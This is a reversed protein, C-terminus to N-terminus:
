FLNRTKSSRYLNGRGGINVAKELNDLGIEINGIIMNLCARMYWVEGYNSSIAIAKDCWQISKDYRGIAALTLALNYCIEANSPNTASTSIRM